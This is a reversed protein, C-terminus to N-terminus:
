NRPVLSEVVQMLPSGAKLPEAAEIRGRADAGYAAALAAATETSVRRGPELTNALGLGLLVSIGSLALCYGFSKAGVRGLKRIDGLGAVGIVLSSLVLPVVLMLLLNLFLQGVPATVHA